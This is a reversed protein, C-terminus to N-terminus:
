YFISDFNHTISKFELNFGFTNNKLWINKIEIDCNDLTSNLKPFRFKIEKTENNEKEFMKVCYTNNNKPLYLKLSFGTDTEYLINYKKCTSPLNFKNHINKYLAEEVKKLLSYLLHNRDKEFLLTMHSLDQKIVKPKYLKLFLRPKFFFNDNGGKKNQTKYISLQELYPITSNCVFISDLLEQTNDQM